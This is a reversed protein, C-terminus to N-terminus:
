LKKAEIIKDYREEILRQGDPSSAEYLIKSNELNAIVKINNAETDDLIENAMRVLERQKNVLGVMERHLKSLDYATYVNFIIALFLALLLLNLSTM